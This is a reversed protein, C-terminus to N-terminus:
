ELCIATQFKLISVKKRTDALRKARVKAIADDEFIVFKLFLLVIIVVSAQGLLIGHVFSFAFSSASM